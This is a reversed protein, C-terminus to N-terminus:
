GGVISMSKDIDDNLINVPEEISDIGGGLSNISKDNQFAKRCSTLIKGLYNNDSDIYLNDDGTDILKQKLDKNKKFKKLTLSNLIDLRCNEWTDSKDREANDMAHKLNTYENGNYTIPNKFEYDINLFNNDGDFFLKDTM